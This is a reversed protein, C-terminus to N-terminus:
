RISLSATGGIEIPVGAAAAAVVIEDIIRGLSFNARPYSALLVGAHHGVDVISGKSKAVALMCGIEKALLMRQMVESGTVPLM